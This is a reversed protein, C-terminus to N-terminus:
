PRTLSSETVIVLCPSGAKVLLDGVTLSQKNRDNSTKTCGLSSALAELGKQYREWEPLHREAAAIDKIMSEYKAGYEEYVFFRNM